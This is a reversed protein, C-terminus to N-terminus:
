RPSDSPGPWRSPSTSSVRGLGADENPIESMGIQLLPMFSAGAGIGLLFAIFITPLLGYGNGGLRVPVTGAARVMAPYMVPKAGFRNLLRATIGASMIAMTVAQPLFALGTKIPSYGLVHEFLPRRHLLDLVDRHHDPGPHRQHRDLTRLKLIRLPMIPNALKSELVLFGIMM